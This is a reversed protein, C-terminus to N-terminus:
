RTPSTFPTSHIRLRKREEEDILVYDVISKRLSLCYSEEVEEELEKRIGAFNEGRALTPSMKSYFQGIVSKPM